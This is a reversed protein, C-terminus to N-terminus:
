RVYEKRVGRVYELFDSDISLNYAVKELHVGSKEHYEMVNGMYDTLTGNIADDFYTPVPKGAHDADVKMGDSFFEFPDQQQEIYKLGDSKSLGAITTHLLYAQKKDDYQRYMYRKAGLTKFDTYAYDKTEWDWVGLPKEIGKITKPSAMGADLGYYTLVRNIKRIIMTNYDAFYKEHKERNIYKVSDTDSYIYDDGLEYIATFLNRRAYATVWIGWPYFLFRKRSTNYKDIAEALRDPDDKLDDVGWEHDIYTYMDKVPDTVMCGYSSNCMGKKKQYETKQEEIGKLATKDAYLTLIGQVIPKPLYAMKFVYARAIEIGDFEYFRYIYELDTDTITTILYDASVVRGNSLQYRGSKLGICKSSSIPCDPMGHRIRINKFKIDFIAGKLPNNRIANFELRTIHEKIEPHSMPFRESCMVAPYSSTFDDSHIEGQIHEGVYLPNAHTFGGAFARRYVNYDDASMTLEEMLLRYQEAKKPDKAPYCLKRLYRRVYGTNTLPIGAIGRKEEEIKEQIYSNLVLVDNMCYHLEKDTLPTQTGRVLDYDLDGVLKEIKYKHIDGATKALGKASLILSDRFEIGDPTIAYIPDRSGKCFVSEWEFLHQIFSFEFSLNHIYIIARNYFDCHEAIFSVLQMFEDWTRGMIVYGNFGFQWVYMTAIKDAGGRRADEDTEGPVHIRMSTTEIDFALPLNWYYIGQKTVPDKKSYKRESTEFAVTINNEIAARASADSWWFVCEEHCQFSGIGSNQNLNKKKRM